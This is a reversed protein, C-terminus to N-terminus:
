QKGPAFADALGRQRAATRRAQQPVGLEDLLVIQRQGIIQFGDRRALLPGRLLAVFIRQLEGGVGIEDKAGSPGNRWIEIGCVRRSFSAACYRGCLPARRTNRISWTSRALSWAALERSLVSSSGGSWKIRIMVASFAYSRSGVM